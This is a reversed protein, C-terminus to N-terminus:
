DMNFAYPTCKGVIGVRVTVDGKGGAGFRVVVFGIVFVLVMTIGVFLLRLLRRKRNRGYPFPAVRALLPENEGLDRGRGAEVEEYPPPPIDQGKTM